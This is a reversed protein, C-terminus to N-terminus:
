GICCRLQFRLPVLPDNPPFGWVGWRELTSEQTNKLVIRLDDTRKLREGECFDNAGFHFGLARAVDRGVNVSLLSDWVETRVQRRIGYEAHLEEIFDKNEVAIRDTTEFGALLCCASVTTIGPCEGLIRRAEAM